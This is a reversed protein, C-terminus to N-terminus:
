SNFTATVGQGNADEFRITGSYSGEDTQNTDSENVWVLIYYDVSSGSTLLYNDVFSAFTSSATNFTNGMMDDTYTTSANYNDILIWSLNPASESNFSVSGKVNNNLGNSNNVLNIKYLQCLAFEGDSDVCDSNLSEALDNFNTIIIDDVGNTNPLVKTVTLELDVSAMNGTISSNNASFAFYAFTGGLTLLLLIIIIITLRVNKTKNSIIDLHNEIYDNNM